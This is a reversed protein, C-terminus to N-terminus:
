YGLSKALEASYSYGKPIELLSTDAKNSFEEIKFDTTESDKFLSINTLSSNVFKYSITADSDALYTETVVAKGGETKEDLSEYINETTFLMDAIANPIMEPDVECYMKLMPFLLYSKSDTDTFFRIEVPTEGSPILYILAGIGEVDSLMERLNISVSSSVASKQGDSTFIFTTNRDEVVASFKIKYVGSNVTSDIETYKLTKSYDKKFGSIMEVSYKLIELADSSNVAGNLDVDAIAQGSRSLLKSQTSHMLVALADNSNISKDGDVDGYLYTGQAQASLAFIGAFLALTLIISVLKKM